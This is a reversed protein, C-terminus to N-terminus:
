SPVAAEALDPFLSDITVINKSDDGEEGLSPFVADAGDFQQTATYPTYTIIVKMDAGRAAALGIQTDEIVVCDEAKVGLRERAVKYIMPDPKKQKVDDGALIIDFKNLRDSGVLMDLVFKVSRSNAASCIATKLGREHAEDMLRLVGPRVQAKGERILKQYMETKREHLHSILKERKEHEDKSDTLKGDPWGYNNFYWRMKEKGGGISNQLMEYLEYSWEFGLGAEEWCENYSIRHLEESEVIVGDCDFILAKEKELSATLTIRHNVIQTTSRRYQTIRTAPRNCRNSFAQFQSIRVLPLSANVFAM